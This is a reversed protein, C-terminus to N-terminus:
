LMALIVVVSTANIVTIYYCCNKTTVKAFRLNTLSTAFVVFGKKCHLVTPMAGNTSHANSGTVTSM